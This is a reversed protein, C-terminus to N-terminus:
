FLSNQTFSYKYWLARDPENDCRISVERSFYRYCPDNNSPRKPSVTPFFVLSYVDIHHTHEEFPHHLELKELSFRGAV